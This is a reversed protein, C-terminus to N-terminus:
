GLLIVDAVYSGDILQEDGDGPIVGVKHPVVAGGEAVGSSSGHIEQVGTGVHGSRMGVMIRWGIWDRM